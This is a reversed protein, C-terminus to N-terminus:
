GMESIVPIFTRLIQRRGQVVKEERVVSVYQLQRPIFQLPILLDLDGFALETSRGRKSRVRPRLM